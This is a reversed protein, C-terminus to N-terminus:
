GLVPTARIMTGAPKTSWKTLSCNMWGSSEDCGSPRSTSRLVHANKFYEVIDCQVYALLHFCHCQENSGLIPISGRTTFHSQQSFVRWRPLLDILRRQKLDFGTEKRQQVRAKEWKQSGLLSLSLWSRKAQAEAAEAKVKPCSQCKLCCSFLYNRSMSWCCCLLWSKFIASIEMESCVLSRKNSGWNAETM